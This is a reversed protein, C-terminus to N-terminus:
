LRDNGVAQRAHVPLLCPKNIDVFYRAIIVDVCICTERCTYLAMLALYIIHFPTRQYTAYSMSIVSFNQQNSTDYMEVANSVMRILWM